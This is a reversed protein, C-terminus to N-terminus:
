RVNGNALVDPLNAMAQRWNGTHNNPRSDLDTRLRLSTDERVALPEQSSPLTGMRSGLTYLENMISERRLEHELAVNRVASLLKEDARKLALGLANVLEQESRSQQHMRIRMEEIQEVLTTTM